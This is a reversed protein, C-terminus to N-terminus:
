SNSDSSTSSNTSNIEPTKNTQSAKSAKKKEYEKVIKNFVNKLTDRNKRPNKQTSKGLLADNIYNKGLVKILEPAKTTLTVYFTDILERDNKGIIDEFIKDWDTSSDGFIANFRDKDIDKLIDRLIAFPKLFISHHKKNDEEQLDYTNISFDDFSHYFIKFNEKNDSTSLKKRGDKLYKELYDIVEANRICIRSLFEPNNYGKENESSREKSNYYIQNLLSGKTKRAIAYIESESDNESKFRKYTKELDIINFLPALADFYINKVASLNRDYYAPSSTRYPIYENAKNKSQFYRSSTLIFFEVLHLEKLAEPNNEIDKGTLNKICESLKDGNIIRKAREEKDKNPPIIEGDNLHYFNGGILKQYNTYDELEESRQVESVIDEEKKNEEKEEKNEEEKKNGKKREEEKREEEEKKKKKIFDTYEDYYEYLRISYLSKIFFILSQTEKDTKRKEIYNLVAFADGLSINYTINNTDFIDKLEYPVNLLLKDSDKSTAENYIFFRSSLLRRNIDKDKDEKNTFFYTYLLQVVKSNFLTPEDENILPQAILRKKDGLCDTWTNFFFNKFLEKNYSSEENSEFDEMLNLMSLLLRLERLNRPIILSTRGKTNYFLYRCKRFILNPIAERLSIFVEGKEEKKDIKEVLQVPQNLFSVENPLYVRADHPILKDLYKEAMGSVQSAAFVGRNILVENEKLMQQQIVNDLQELKVAMLLIVNPLILYKRIQEVMKYAQSVNLDIDDISIVLKEKKYCELYRNITEHLREKVRESEGLHGLKELADLHIDEKKCHQLSKQLEQFAKILNKSADYPIKEDRDESFQNYMRAILLELINSNMEFFSPDMTELVHFSNKEYTPNTPLSKAFSMMCSTKGSGREGIFAIINNPCNNIDKNEKDKKQITLKHVLTEAKKYQEKFISNKRREGDEIVPKTEENMYFRITEVKNQAKENSQADKTDSMTNLNLNLILGRM